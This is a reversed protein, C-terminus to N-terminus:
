DKVCRVALGASKNFNGQYVPSTDFNIYRYVGADEAGENSTWWFGFAGASEFSGRAGRGGGPLAAFGFDNTGFQVDHYNWRPHASTACEGGIPSDIQRCSKLKNGIANIDESNNTLQHETQLYNMLRNWDDNTSVHWGAPCLGNANEIANWNYSAGYTEKQNIDNNYWSYAGTTNNRWAEDDTGPNEIDTGNRYKTTKLNEAMWVQDGITVTVYENGDADAVTGPDVPPPPPDDKECGTTTFLITGYLLVSCFWFFSSRKM